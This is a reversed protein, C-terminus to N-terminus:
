KGEDNPMEHIWHFGQSPLKFIKEPLKKLRAVLQKGEFDGKLLLLDQSPSEYRLTGVKQPNFRKELVMEKKEEDFKALYAKMPPTATNIRIAGPNKFDIKKWDDVGTAPPQGDFTIESVEWAGAIPNDPKFREQYRTYGSKIHIYLMLGVLLTKILLALWNLWRTQFLPGEYVREVPQGLVLLKLLQPLAPGALFLGMMLYHFAYLKVPVDYCMNLIFVQTMALITMLAGLTVTLRPVLLLAAMVEVGGTIMQYPSSHGMFAWLLSMPQLDGFPRDYYFTPVPFQNPFLKAFGYGFLMEILFFRVWIRAFSHLKRDFRWTPRWVRQIEFLLTVALAIALAIVASCFVGVYNRRTDGSGTMQIIVKTDFVKDGVETIIKNQEDTMWKTFQEFKENVPKLWTPQSEAPVVQLPLSILELPLTFTFCVFYIIVWRQLLQSLLQVFAM